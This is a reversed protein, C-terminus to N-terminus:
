YINENEPVDRTKYTPIATPIVAPMPNRIKTTYLVVFQYTTSKLHILSKYFIYLWM